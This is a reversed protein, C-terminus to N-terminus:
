QEAKKIVIARAVSKRLKEAIWTVGAPTFRTQEFAHDHAEGAKVDFYGAHQHTAYPLLTGNEQRFIVRTDILWKVFEREKAGLIKSVARINKSGRADAYRAHFDVAPEQQELQLAQAQIKEQQDAALRLAEAFNRPTQMSEAKRLRRECEIFYVRARRGADTREVMALEKAAEITVFVEKRVQARAKSADSDPRSLSQDVIYDIGKIFGYEEVREMIWARFVRGVGLFAHLDRASVANVEDGAPFERREIAILENM